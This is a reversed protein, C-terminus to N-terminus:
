DLGDDVPPEGAPPDGMPPGGPPGGPGGGPPGGFKTSMKAILNAIKPNSQYKALNEPHQSVDQFAALVEPDQRSLLWSKQIQCSRTSTQCGEQCEELCEVLCEELCEELCEVPCEAQCEGLCEVLCGVLQAALFVVWAQFGAQSVEQSVVELGVPQHVRGNGRKRNRTQGGGWWVMLVVKVDGQTGGGWWMDGESVRKAKEQAEKAAQVRKKRARLEKEEQKREKKRQHEKIKMAKPQVEKLLLYTDDDYDIKQATALDKASEEWHGLLKHAKGRWKYGAASDPNLQIARNCDHIAANPKSMRLFCSARKAFLPASQPNLRIAETWLEIAKDNEGENMAAQAEARKDNSQDMMEETVEISDDGMDPPPDSDGEIVGEMDIDLDSEESEEEEPEPEPPPPPKSASGTPPPSDQTTGTQSTPAPPITAGMSEMWNKFFQLQPDHLVGPNARCLQVFAQLQAIKEADM